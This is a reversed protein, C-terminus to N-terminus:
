FMFVPEKLYISYAFLVAGGSLSFYWFAVPFVSKKAKESSIWQIVFRMSFFFQGLFGFLIWGNLNLLWEIM